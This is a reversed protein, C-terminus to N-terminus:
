AAMGGPGPRNSEDDLLDGLREFQKSEQATASASNRTRERRERGGVLTVPLPDFHRWAPLSATLSALLAGSRLLWSVFGVTLTTGGITVVRVILQRQSESSGMSQQLDDELSDLTKRFSASIRAPAEALAQVDLAKQVEEGAHQVLPAVNEKFYGQLERMLPLSRGASENDGLAPAAARDPPPPASGSPGNSLWVPTTPDWPNPLPSVTPGRVIVPPPSAPGAGPFGGAPPVPTQPLLSPPTPVQPTIPPVGEVVDSITITITQQDTGGAGDDVQITVVYINDAGVDAPAEFDPAVMFQLVGSGSNITFRAADVGGVISYVAAGGDPDNSTVTTVATQNEAVTIAANAGGSNSTIVPADNVPTVTLAVTAVDTLSNSDTSTVTLTDSGTFNLTGQYVLSALTANLDAQSGALTLSASGNAGASITAAGALTVTVTGNTVGLQVTSLNGDVDTVSVGSIPLATDEAVSQAGPVTIVPPDNVATIDVNVTGLTINGGGGTGTNGNDTVQVTLTDANDGNTNATGHLYQVNAASGLYTNLNAQTGTLTLVGTGSGAVTVGGGSIATLNGGTATTLTVTLNGVGGDVDSLSILSLDVNSLVDETVTVDTPLSGNNTPDDNVATVTIAITDTDSQAGGGGNNGQDNTVIELSAAGTFDATPTFHLNELAANIAAVMGTFTMTGDATGDGTIFALGFTDNLTLVGNTATLTIQVSGSGADVDAISIRNGNADSFILVTDEPMSQPGPVTNVPADNQATMTITRTVIASDITGDDVVFSVTRAATNPADSLNTYTVSRLATQYDAVTASGTLALEGTAANWSGTIGLQNTFALLDQGNVYNGTVQVRASALTANDADAVTLGTDIIVAGDNETYSLSGGSTTVVPPVNNSVIISATETDSQAGGSGTHGQDDITLQVSASGNYNLDPTFGLGDLATNVATLTGTFTMTTDAIGDGSMFSLGATSALTSTGNTAALTIQVVNGGADSDSVSIKNGNATSFVLTTNQTTGQPGPLSIVPLDNVATVTIAVNDTDNLAGGSGSQGEDNSHIQLSAAGTFDLMPTFSLGNLATNINAVTGSFTIIADATGDGTIFTLGTTGNLTLVGNTATLTVLVPSNAADVDTISIQNGNGSSFVLSGDEAVMQPGPVTNVPADNVGSVTVTTDYNASTGGDGDTLVYRMTRAGTTPAATDTNEYTVNRILAQVATPTANSNFTVVLNSGSSGGTFTGITTGEYTVNAGSVGIQGAGTGQNRIALVDEASDSGSTFSVTLTGTDFNASDSDAVLANGGQEIVVAGDGESYALSDGSLNTITPADNTTQIIKFAMDKPNQSVGDKDILDGASYAGSDHVGVYVKGAISDSAVRIYYTQTDNLNAASSLNINVWAESTGLSTSSITGSAIATGNWGSSVPILSVTITQGEGGSAIYLVLGVKDVTYTAGPSDFQFTMGWNQDSKVEYAQDGMDLFAPEYSHLTTDGLLSYWQSQTEASVALTTEIDGTKFELDWDGGLTAHGTSDESANVDAGTLQALRTAAEAGQEGQGFDCGYILLDAKESLSQGIVALEDAYSGNMSELTLHATGLTLEAQTGHSLIHIADIGTRGALAEAMQEIGDRAPDLLIVEVDSSIDDLLQQYEHISPTIFLIEQRAVSTADGALDYLLVQDSSAFPPEGTPADSVSDDTTADDGWFFAEAQSQAVQETTVAGFMAAAAGDLMIRSELALLSSSFTSRTGYTNMSVLRSGRVPKIAVNKQRTINEHCLRRRCLDM